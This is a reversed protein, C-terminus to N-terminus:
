ILSLGELIGGPKLITFTNKLSIKFENYSLHELVHSCYIGDCSDNSDPLGKVIDGYRLNEPFRSKNKTYIRGMLPIREFRLTHSADYNVWNEPATFGCGYQVYKGM